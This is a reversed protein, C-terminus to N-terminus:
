DLFGRNVYKHLIRLDCDPIGDEGLTQVCAKSLKERRKLDLKPLGFAEQLRLLRRQIILRKREQEESKKM